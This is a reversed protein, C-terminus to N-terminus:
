SVNGTKLTGQHLLLKLPLAHPLVMYSVLFICFTVKPFSSLKKGPLPECNFMATSAAGTSHRLKAVLTALVVLMCM